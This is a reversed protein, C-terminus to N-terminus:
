PVACPLSFPCRLDGARLANQDVGTKGPRRQWEACQRWSLGVLQCCVAVRLPKGSFLVSTQDEHRTIAAPLRDALTLVPRRGTGQGAKIRPRHGRRKDPSDERQQHRLTMLTATLADREAATLGTPAPHCLWAPDPSPQDFPGPDSAPKDYERPRLPYNWDGHWDHRELPLAKM